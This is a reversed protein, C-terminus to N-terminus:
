MMNWWRCWCCTSIVINTSNNAWCRNFYSSQRWLMAPLHFCILLHDVWWPFWPFLDTPPVVLARFRHYILFIYTHTHYLIINISHKHSTSADVRSIILDLNQGDIGRFCSHLRAKHADVPENHENLIDPRQYFFFIHQRPLWTPYRVYEFMFVQANQHGKLCWWGPNKGHLHICIARIAGLNTRWDVWFVARQTQKRMHTLLTHRERERESARCRVSVQSHNTLCGATQNQRGLVQNACLIWWVISRAHNLWHFGSLSVASSRAAPTAQVWHDVHKLRLFLSMVYWMARFLIMGQPQIHSM